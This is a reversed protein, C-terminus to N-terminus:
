IKRLLLDLRDPPGRHEVIEAFESRADLYQALHARYVLGVASLQALVGCNPAIQQERKRRDQSGDRYRDASMMLSPVAGAIGVAELAFLDREQSADDGDSIREVGHAAGARLPRSRDVGGLGSVLEPAPGTAFKIGPDHGQDDLKGVIAPDDIGGSDIDGSDEVADLM